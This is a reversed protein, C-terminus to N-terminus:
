GWCDWHEWPARYHAINAVLARRGYQWRCASDPDVLSAKGGGASVCYWSDTTAGRLSTDAFGQSQCYRRLDIRGLVVVNDWCQWSDADHIDAFRATATTRRYRWRCAEIVSLSEKTGPPRLCHWDYATPGDVSSGAYGLARCYGALDVGGLFLSHAPVDPLMAAPVGVLVWGALAAVAVAVAVFATQRSRPRRAAVRTQAAASDSPEAVPLPVSRDPNSGPPRTTGAMGGREAAEWRRAWAQEDGGCARVFALTLDRSPLRGGALVGSLATHSYHADRSMTRLSPQGADERLRRLAAVFAVVESPETAQGTM